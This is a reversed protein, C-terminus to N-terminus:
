VLADLKQTPNHPYISTVKAYEARFLAYQATEGKFKFRKPRQMCTQVLTHMDIRLKQMDSTESDSSPPQVAYALIPQVPNPLYPVEATSLVQRGAERESRPAYTLQGYGGM